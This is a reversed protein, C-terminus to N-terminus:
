ASYTYRPRRGTAAGSEKEAKAELIDRIFRLPLDPNQTAALALRLNEKIQQSLSRNLLVDIESSLM